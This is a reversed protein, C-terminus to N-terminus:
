RAPKQTHAIKRQADVWDLLPRLLELYLQAAGSREALARTLQRYFDVNLKRVPARLARGRRELDQVMTGWWRVQQQYLENQTARAIQRFYQVRFRHTQEPTPNDGLNDVLYELVALEESTIRREALTLLPVLFLAQMELAATALGPGPEALELQLQILRIDTSEEPNLVITTSGQRVRVLGLDELRHIAQRVVLASVSFQKALDRQTALPEGPKFTGKLIARALSEFVYDAVRQRAPPEARFSSAATVPDEAQPEATTVAM